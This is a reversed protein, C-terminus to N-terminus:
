GGGFCIKVHICISEDPTVSCAVVMICMEQAQVPQQVGAPLALGVVLLCAVLCRKLMKGGETFDPPFM